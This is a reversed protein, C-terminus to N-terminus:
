FFFLNTLKKVKLLSYYGLYILFFNTSYPTENLFLLVTRNVEKRKILKKFLNNFKNIENNLEFDQVTQLILFIFEKILETKLYQM